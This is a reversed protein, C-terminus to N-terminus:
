RPPPVRRCHLMLTSNPVALTQMPEAGLVVVMVTAELVEDEIYGVRVKTGKEILRGDVHAPEIFELEEGVQFRDM